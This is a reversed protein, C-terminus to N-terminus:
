KYFMGSISEYSIIEHFIGANNGSADLRGGKDITVIYQQGNHPILVQRPLLTQDTYLKPLGITHRLLLYNDETFYFQVAQPYYYINKDSNMTLYRFTNELTVWENLPVGKIDLAYEVQSQEM